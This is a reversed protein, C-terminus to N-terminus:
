SADTVDSEGQNDTLVTLLPQLATLVSVTCCLFLVDVALATLAALHVSLPATLAVTLAASM